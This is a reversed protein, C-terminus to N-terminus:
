ITELSPKFIVDILTLNNLLLEIANDNRMLTQIVYEYDDKYYGEPYSEPTTKSTEHYMAVWKNKEGYLINKDLCLDILEKADYYLMYGKDNRRIQYTQM